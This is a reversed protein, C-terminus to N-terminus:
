EEFYVVSIPVHVKEYAKFEEVQRKDFTLFNLIVPLELPIAAGNPFEESLSEWVVAYLSPRDPCGLIKFGEPHDALSRLVSLARKCAALTGDARLFMLYEIGHFTGPERPGAAHFAIIRVIRLWLERALPSHM